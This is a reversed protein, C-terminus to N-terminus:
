EKEDNNNRFSEELNRKEEESLEISTQIRELFAEIAMKNGEKFVNEYRIYLVEMNAFYFPLFFIYPIFAGANLIPPLYLPDKVVFFYILSSLASGVLPLVVILWNLKFWDKRMSRRYRSYANAIALRMLSPTGNNINARYYLSISNFSIFGMFTAIAFPLPLASVYMMFTLLLGDNAKLAVLLEDYSAGALYQSVLENVSNLFLEGYQQRYILYFSFYIIIMLIGYVALSKLFSTIGRFSGRFQPRFFSVFYHFFARLRIPEGISLLYCSIHSAFLFPLALVPVAIVLIMEDLISFATLLVFFLGCLVGVAIYSSINNKFRAFSQSALSEKM